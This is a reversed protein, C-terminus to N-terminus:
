IINPNPNFNTTFLERELNGYDNYITENLRYENNETEQQVQQFSM